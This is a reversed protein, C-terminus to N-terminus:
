KKQNNDYNILWQVGFKDTLSGFYGGWFAVQMSMTAEGGDSLGKFSRDAEDRSDPSITISHNNGASLKKGMIGDSDDGMITSDGVPLAIHMISNKDIGPMEACEENDGWRMVASFEGGFVSKYFNFAEEANGSFSIYPNLQTM